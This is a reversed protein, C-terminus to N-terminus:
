IGESSFRTAYYEKMEKEKKKDRWKNNPSRSDNLMEIYYAGMREGLMADRLKATTFWAWDLIGLPRFLTKNKAFLFDNFVFGHHLEDIPLGSYVSRGTLRETDKVQRVAKTLAYRGYQQKKIM